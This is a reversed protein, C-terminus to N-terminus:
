ARRMNPACTTSSPAISADSRQSGSSRGGDGRTARAAAGRRPAHGRSASRQPLSAAPGPRPWAAPAPGHVFPALALTWGRRCPLRLVARARAAPGLRAPLRCGGAADRRGRQCRAVPRRAAPALAALVADPLAGTALNVVLTCCATASRTPSPPHRPLRAASLADLGAAGVLLRFTANDLALEHTSCGSRMARRGPRRCGARAPDLPGARGMARACRELWDSRDRGARGRDPLTAGFGLRCLEPVGLARQLPAPVLPKWGRRSSRSSWRARRGCCSPLSVSCRGPEALGAEPLMSSTGSCRRTWSNRTKTIAGRRSDVATGVRRVGCQAGADSAQLWAELVLTSFDQQEEFEGLIAGVEGVVLEFM